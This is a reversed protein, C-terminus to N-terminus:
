EAFICNLSVADNMFHTKVLTTQHTGLWQWGQEVDEVNKVEPLEIAEIIVKRSRKPHGLLTYSTEGTHDKLMLRLSGNFQANVIEAGSTIHIAGAEAGRVIVSDSTVPLGALPFTNLGILQPNLWWTYEEDGKVTSFADPYMGKYEGTPAQEQMGHHTIGEALEYWDIPGDTRQYGALRFLADAYWLGNWHVIVGFWSQVDHFTVGFVPVTGYRMVPRYGPNWLFTFPLGTWAWKNAAELYTENGTLDYVGLNLNILYPVALVDPVHLHLEWTQAGEPRRQRNCWDAARKVASVAVADGTVLAYKLVPIIKSSTFGTASDQVKGMLDIREATKFEGVNAIAEPTWGWSGDAQQESILERAAQAASELSAAVNGYTLALELRPVNHPAPQKEFARPIARRVQDRARARLVPDGQPWRSYRWLQNALIPEFRPGWPDALTHHWGEAADDWAVDLYSEICLNVNERYNHGPDPLSPLGYTEVWERLISVAGGQPVAVLYASLTQPNAPSIGSAAHAEHQGENLKRSDVGPAFLALWHNEADAQLRNPSSFLTAPYRWAGGWVQNEDWIFGVSRGEHSVAMLPITIKYPHPVTRNAYKEAAFRTDSSPEDGLLYELGPFIAEDKQSGFSGEGVYLCPGLWRFYSCAQDTELRYDVELQYPSVVHAFTVHLTWVAGDVDTFTGRLRLAHSNGDCSQAKLNVEHRNAAKDKYILHSLPTTKAMVQWGAGDRVEIRFGTFEGGEELCTLRLASTELIHNSM